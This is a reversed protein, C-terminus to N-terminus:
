PNIFATRLKASYKVDFGLGTALAAMPLYTKDEKGIRQLFAPNAIEVNQGNVKMVKSGITIVVTRDGYTVTASSTGNDWKGTAGIADMIDRLALFNQNNRLIPKNPTNLEKGRVVITMGGDTQEFAPISPALYSGWIMESMVSAIAEYGAQTPHFDRHVSVIWTFAGERGEFAKAVHAVKVPAEPTNLSAAVAEATETFRAAAGMLKGYAAGAARQSAPQYQDALVIVATPNVARIHNLAATMNTTYAALLADQKAQFEAEGLTAAETLLDRVDNGGITIAILDASRLAASAQPVGAAFAPLRPDALGAQIRDATVATGAQLAATYNVLGTTTLGLIGYNSLETRGRYLGQELLREAYGYPQANVDTITPEYGATISDGLTVIRFPESVASAASATGGGTGALLLVFALVALAARKAWKGVIILKRM